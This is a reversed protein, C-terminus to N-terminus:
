EPRLFAQVVSERFRLLGGPTRLVPLLGRDVWRRVTKPDVRFLAAVEGTMMLPEAEPIEPAAGTM